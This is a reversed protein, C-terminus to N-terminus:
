KGPWVGKEQLFKRAIDMFAADTKQLGQDSMHIHDVFDDDTALNEFDILRLKNTACFEEVMARYKRPYPLPEHWSALPLLVIVLDMKERNIYEALQQLDRRHATLNVQWDTGLRQRYDAAYLDANKSTKRRRLAKPVMWARFTGLVRPGPERLPGQPGLIQSHLWDHSGARNGNGLRVPLAGPPAAHQYFCLGGPREATQYQPLMNRLRDLEQRSRVAPLKKHNVLFEVYQRVYRASSEGGVGFNHVLRRQEHPLSPVCTAWMMNSGGFFYVGGRSVDLEELEELLTRDENDVYLRRYLNSGDDAEAFKRDVWIALEENHLTADLVLASVLAPWCASASWRNGSSPRPWPNGKTM